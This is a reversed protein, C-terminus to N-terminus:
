RVRIHFRRSRLLGRVYGAGLRRLLTPSYYSRNGTDTGTDAEGIPNHHDQGVLAGTQM